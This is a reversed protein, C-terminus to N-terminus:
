VGQRPEYLNLGLKLGGAVSINGGTTAVKQSKGSTSPGLDCGLDLEITMRTGEIKCFVNQGIAVMGESPTFENATKKAVQKAM